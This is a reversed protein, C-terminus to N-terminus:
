FMMDVSCKVADADEQLKVSLHLICMTTPVSLLLEVHPVDHGILCLLLVGIYIASDSCNILQEKWTV